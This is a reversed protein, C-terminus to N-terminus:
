GPLSPIVVDFADSASGGHATPNTLPDIIKLQEIISGPWGHTVILPLANPHKSRVHIFHIDLGDINTVFQPLADLRAEVKRWDYDTQWYRALERMTAFQVGQSGDTVLERSPWKTAAVRRRLDALAEDSAHFKFPRIATGNSEAAAAVTASPVGVVSAALVALGVRRASMSSIALVVMAAFVIIGTRFGVRHTLRELPKM